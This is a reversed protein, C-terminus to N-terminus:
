CDRMDETTGVQRIAEILAVSLNLGPILPNPAWESATMAGLFCERVAAFGGPEKEDGQTDGYGCNRVLRLVTRASPTAGSALLCCIIDLKAPPKAALDLATQHMESEDTADLKCAAVWSPRVMAALITKANCIVAVKFSRARYCPM